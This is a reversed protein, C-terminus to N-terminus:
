VDLEADTRRTVVNLFAKGDCALEVLLGCVAFVYRAGLAVAVVVLAAEPRIGVLSALAVMSGESLGVGLLSVPLSRALQATLVLATVILFPFPQVGRFLWYYGSAFILHGSGSLLLAAILSWSGLGLQQIASPLPLRRGSRRLWFVAAAGLGGLCLVVTGLLISASSSLRWAVSLGLEPLLVLAIFGMGMVGTLRDAVVSATSRAAAGTRASLKLVRVAEGGLSSPVAIGVFEGLLNVRLLFLTSIDRLNLGNACILRWRLAYLFKSLLLLIFFGVFTSLPVQAFSAVVDNLNVFRIALYLMGSLVVWKGIAFYRSDLWFRNKELFTQSADNM